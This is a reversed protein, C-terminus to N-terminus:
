IEESEFCKLPCQWCDKCKKAPSDPLIELEIYEILNRYKKELVNAETTIYSIPVSFYFEGYSERAIYFVEYSKPSGNLVEGTQTDIAFGWKKWFHWELLAQNKHSKHTIKKKAASDSDSKIQICHNIEPIYIDPHCNSRDDVTYVELEQVAQPYYRKILSFVREQLTYGARQYFMDFNSISPNLALAVHLRDCMGIMSVRPTRVGLFRPKSDEQYAKKIINEALIV